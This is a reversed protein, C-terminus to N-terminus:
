MSVPRRSGASWRQPIRRPLASIALILGSLLSLWFSIKGLGSVAKSCYHCFSRKPLERTPSELTVLQGRRLRPAIENTVNLIYSIDPDRNVTLPTPVCIVIIDAENLCDFQDSAALKDNKVLDYLEADDVDGVYNEGRNIQEV